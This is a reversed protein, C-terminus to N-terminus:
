KKNQKYVKIVKSVLGLSCDMEHAIDRQTMDSQYMEIIREDRSQKATSINWHGNVLHVEIDEIKEGNRNKEIKM